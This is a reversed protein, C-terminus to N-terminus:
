SASSVEKMLETIDRKQRIIEILSVGQKTLKWMIRPRGKKGSKKSYEIVLAINKLDRLNDFITSRKKLSTNNNKLYERGFILEVLSDRDKEGDILTLLIEWQVFSVKFQGRKILRELRLIRKKKWYNKEKV